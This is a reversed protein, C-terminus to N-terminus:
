TSSAAIEEPCRFQRGCELVRLRLRWYRTLLGHERLKPSWVYKGTPRKAAKEASLMARMVDRDIADYSEQRSTQPM